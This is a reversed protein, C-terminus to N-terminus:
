ASESGVIAAAGRWALVVVKVFPILTGEVQLEEVALRLGLNQLILLHRSLHLLM